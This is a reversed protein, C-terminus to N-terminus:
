EETDNEEAKKKAKVKKPAAKKPKKAQEELWLQVLAVKEPRYYRKLLKTKVNEVGDADLKKFLADKDVIM